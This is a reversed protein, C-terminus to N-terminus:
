GAHKEGIGVFDKFWNPRGFQTQTNPLTTIADEKSGQNAAVNEMMEKDNNFRTLHLRVELYDSADLEELTKLIEKLQATMWGFVKTDSCLRFLVTIVIIVVLSIISVTSVTSMTSVTSVTIM